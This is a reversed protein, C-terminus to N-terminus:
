NQFPDKNEEKYLKILHKLAKECAAGRNSPIYLTLSDWYYTNGCSMSYSANYCHQVWKIKTSFNLTIIAVDDEHFISPKNDLEVSSVNQWALNTYTATENYRGNSYEYVKKEYFVEDASFSSKIYLNETNRKDNLISYTKLGEAEKMCKAIFNITEEKTPSKQSAPATSATKAAKKVPTKTTTTKKVQAQGALTIAMFLCITILKKM